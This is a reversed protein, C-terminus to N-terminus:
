ANGAANVIRPVGNVVGMICLEGNPMRANEPVWDLPWGQESGGNLHGISAWPILPRHSASHSSTPASDPHGEDTPSPVLDM